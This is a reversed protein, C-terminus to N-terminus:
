HGRVSTRVSTRVSGREDARDGAAGVRGRVGMNARLTYCFGRLAYYGAISM